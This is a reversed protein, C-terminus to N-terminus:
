AGAAPPAPESCLSEMPVGSDAHWRAFPQGRGNHPAGDEGIPGLRSLCLSLGLLRGSSSAEAEMRRAFRVAATVAERPGDATFCLRQAHRDWYLSVEFVHVRAFGIQRLYAAADPTDERRCAGLFLAVLDHGDRPRIGGLQQVRVVDGQRGISRKSM